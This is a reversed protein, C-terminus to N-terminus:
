AVARRRSPRSGVEARGPTDLYRAPDGCRRGPRAEAQQQDSAASITEMIDPTGKLQQPRYLCLRGYEPRRRSTLGQEAAYRSPVICAQGESAKTVVRYTMESVSLGPRDGSRFAWVQDASRRLVVVEGSPAQRAILWPEGCRGRCQRGGGTLRYESGGLELHPTLSAVLRRGLFCRGPSTLGVAATPQRVDDDGRVTSCRSAHASRSGTCHFPGM